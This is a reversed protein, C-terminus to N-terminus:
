GRNGRFVAAAPWAALRMKYESMSAQGSIVKKLDRTEDTSLLCRTLVYGAAPAQAIELRLEGPGVVAATPGLFQAPPDLRGTNYIAISGRRSKFVNAAQEEDAFILCLCSSSNKRDALHCHSRLVYRDM